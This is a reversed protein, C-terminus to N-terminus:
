LDLLLCFCNSMTQKPFQYLQNCGSQSAFQANEEKNRKQSLISVSHAEAKSKEDRRTRKRPNHANKDEEVRLPPKKSKQTM